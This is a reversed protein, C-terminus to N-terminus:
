SPTLPAPQWERVCNRGAAKAAYLARDAHEIAEEVTLEPALPALGFSATVFVPKGTTEALPVTHLAERIRELGALASPPEANALLLLFEEGGYRFVRDYPRLHERIRTVTGALVQDGVLHGHADNVAKFRDLDMVAICCPQVGRRVLELAERLRGPMGVRGEAGTLPDRQYLADELEQRHMREHEGGLAEFSATGRYRSGAGYYWQGFQCTRHADGALDRSDHPLRCALSRMLERHWDEHHHIAQDVEGIVAYLDEGDRTM